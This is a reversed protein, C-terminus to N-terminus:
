LEPDSVHVASIASRLTGLASFLYYLFVSRFKFSYILLLLQTIQRHALTNTPAVELSPKRTDYAGRRKEDHMETSYRSNNEENTM